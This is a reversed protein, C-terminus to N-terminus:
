STPQRRLVRGRYGSIRSFRIDPRVRIDVRGYPKKISHKKHPKAKMSTVLTKKLLSDKKYNYDTREKTGVERM